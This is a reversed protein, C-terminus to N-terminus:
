PEILMDQDSEINSVNTESETMRVGEYMIQVHGKSSICYKYIEEVVPLLCGITVLISGYCEYSNPVDHFLYTQWIFNIPIIIYELWSVKTADAYQYGIVNCLLGVFALVTILLIILFADVTFVYQGNFVDGLTKNRLTLHNIINWIPVSVLTSQVSLVLELQMVHANKARRILICAIAWSVASVCVSLIGTTNISEFDTESIINMIFTPQSLILIGCTVTICSTILIFINPLKEKLLFHAAFIIILPSQYFICSADGLPILSIAYFYSAAMLFHFFSRIWINLINPQNGYWHLAQQNSNSKNYWILWCISVVLAICYRFFLIQLLPLHPLALKYTAEMSAFLFQGITVLSMGILTNKSETNKSM